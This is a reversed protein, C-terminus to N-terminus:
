VAPSPDAAQEENNDRTAEDALYTFPSPALIGRSNRGKRAVDGDSTGSPDPLLRNGLSTLAAVFIPRSAM